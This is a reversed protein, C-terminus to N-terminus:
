HARLTQSPQSSGNNVTVGERFQATDSPLFTIEVRRTPIHLYSELETLNRLERWAPM